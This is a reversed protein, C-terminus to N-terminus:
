KTDMMLVISWPEGHVSKTNQIKRIRNEHSSILLPRPSTSLHMRQTNCWNPMYIKLVSTCDILDLCNQITILKPRKEAQGRPSFVHGVFAGLVFLHEFDTATMSFSCSEMTTRTCGHLQPPQLNPFQWISLVTHWSWDWIYSVNM